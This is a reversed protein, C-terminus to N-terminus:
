TDHIPTLRKRKLHEARGILAGALLFTLQSISANPITDVMTLALIICISVTPVSYSKDKSSRVERYYAVLPYFLLGFVALYGLWGFNGFIIIWYGDTVSLDQGTYPDYIRNRGWSGWGFLKRKNAKELLLDEHHFRFEISQAREESYGKVFNTMENVPVFGNGRLVPFVFVLAALGLAINFRTKLKLFLILVVAVLGYMLPGVSKNLVLLALLFLLIVTIKKFTTQGQEAKFSAASIV